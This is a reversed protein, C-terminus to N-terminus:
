LNNFCKILFMSILAQTVWIPLILIFGFLKSQASTEFLGNKAGSLSTIGKHSSKIFCILSSPLETPAIISTLAIFVGAPRPSGTNSLSSASIAFRLLKTYCVNYSTIRCGGDGVIRGGLGHAADSCEIIASLQPYGVGTKIRTTCVSGPGIGVKVIDAGYYSRIAYM